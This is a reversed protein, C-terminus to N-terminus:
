PFVFLTSGNRAAVRFNLKYISKETLTQFNVRPGPVPLDDGILAQDNLLHLLPVGPVVGALGEIDLTLHLRQWLQQVDHTLLM